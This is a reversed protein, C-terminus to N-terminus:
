RALNRVIIGQIRLLSLFNSILEAYESDRQDFYEWEIIYVTITAVKEPVTESAEAKRSKQRPPPTRQRRSTTQTPFQNGIEEGRGCVIDWECLLAMGIDRKM